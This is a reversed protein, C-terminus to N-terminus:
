VETCDSFDVDIGKFKHTGMSILKEYILKYINNGEKNQEAVSLPFNKGGLAMDERELFPKGDTKATSDTYLHLKFFVAGTAINIKLNEITFWDGTSQNALTISKQIAM